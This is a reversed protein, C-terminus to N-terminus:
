RDSHATLDAIQLKWQHCCHHHHRHPPLIPKKSCNKTHAITNVTNISWNISQLTSPSLKIMLNRKPLTVWHKYKSIYSGVQGMLNTICALFVDVASIVTSTKVCVCLLGYIYLVLCRSDEVQGYASQVSASTMLHMTNIVSVVVSLCSWGRFFPLSDPILRYEELEPEAPAVAISAKNRRIVSAELHLLVHTTTQDLM